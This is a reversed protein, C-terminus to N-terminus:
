NLYELGFTKEPTIGFRAMGQVDEVNSLDELTKIIEQLDM